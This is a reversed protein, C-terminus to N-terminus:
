DAIQRLHRCVVILKHQNLWHSLNTDRLTCPFHKSSNGGPWGLINSLVEVCVRVEGEEGRERQGERHRVHMSEREGWGGDRGSGANERM